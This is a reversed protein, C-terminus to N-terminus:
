SVWAALQPGGHQDDPRNNISSQGASKADFSAMASVLGSVGNDFVLAAQTGSAGGDLLGAVGDSSLVEDLGAQLQRVTEHGAGFGADQADVDFADLASTDFSMGTSGFGTDSFQGTSGDTRHYDGLGFSVNDGVVRVTEDSTLEIAAIGAALLTKMEGAESIGNQNADQWVKFQGFLDDRADLLGDANSDFGLLGELDTRAGDKYGVFSIEDIDTAADDMDKDFVLLGDDAAAWGTRETEGDGNVDFFIDADDANVLEIGDEDLDLVIPKTILTANYTVNITATATDGHVDAITYQFSGSASPTDSQVWTWSVSIANGDAYNIQAAAISGTVNGVSILSIADGDPDSDNALPGNTPNLTIFSGFGADSYSDNVAIPATNPLPQTNFTITNHAVGGAGDSVSYTVTNAGVAAPSTFTLMSGTMSASGAAPGQSLGFSLVDGDIDAVMPALDITTTGAWAVDHSAAGATPAFNINNVTVDVSGTSVGGAGDSVTFEVPVDGFGGVASTYTLLSGNLSASGAAPATGLAYTLANGDLDSAYAALDITVQQGEDVSADAAVLTPAFNIDEVTVDATGSTTLGYIDTATFGISQLGLADV